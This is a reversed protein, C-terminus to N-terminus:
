IEGPSADVDFQPISNTINHGFHTPVDVGFINRGSSNINQGFDADPISPTLTIFVGIIYKMDKM